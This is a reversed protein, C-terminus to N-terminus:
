PLTSLLHDISKDNVYLIRTIILEYVTPFNNKLMMLHNKADEILHIKEDESMEIWSQETRIWDHINPFFLWPEKRSQQKDSLIFISRALEIAIDNENSITNM